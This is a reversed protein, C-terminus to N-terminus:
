SQMMWRVYQPTSAWTICILQSMLYLQKDACVHAVFHDSGSLKVQINFQEFDYGKHKPIPAHIHRADAPRSAM